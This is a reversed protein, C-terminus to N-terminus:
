PRAAARSRWPQGLAISLEQSTPAVGVELRSLIKFIRYAIYSMASVELAVIALMTTLFEQEFM